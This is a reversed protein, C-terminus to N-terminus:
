QKSTFALINKHHYEYIPFYKSRLLRIKTKGYPDLLNRIDKISFSWLHRDGDVEGKTEDKPVSLALYGGKKLIRFAEKLFKEPYELHELLEGVIVYDFYLSPFKTNYVDGVVWHVQPYKESMVSIAEKSQDLGWVESTPYKDKALVPAISDLCGLDVLRGKKRYYSLLLKWRKLDFEDVEKKAREFFIRDYEEPSNINKDTLRKM